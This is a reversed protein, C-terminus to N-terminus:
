LRAFNTWDEEKGNFTNWDVWGEVGDLPKDHSHQWFIWRDNEMRPEKRFTCIWILSTDFHGEIYSKYSSENTYIIVDRGTKKEVLDIFARIEETIQAPKKKHNKNGWDEVDIVPPLDDQGLSVHKLFNEAQEKGSKNFRFFHYVGTKLGSEKAGSYNVKYKPDLYSTGETAKIYAFHIQQQSVKLWDIKGSHKSVDIGTIPYKNKNINYWVPNLKKYLVYSGIALMAFLMLLLYPWRRRKKIKKRPM